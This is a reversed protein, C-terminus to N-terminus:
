HVLLNINYKSQGELRKNDRGLADNKETLEAVRVRLRQLEAELTAKDARLGNNEATLDDCRKQLGLNDNEM